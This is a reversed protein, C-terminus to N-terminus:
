KLRFRATHMTGDVLLVRLERCTGAWAKETKWVYTYTGLNFTLGSKGAPSAPEVAGLAAGTTCDIRVSAPYGAAFIALGRDGGLSFKVPV